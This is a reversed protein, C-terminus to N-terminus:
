LPKLYHRVAHRAVDEGVRLGKHCGDRFHIGAFVRSSASEQAAYSLSHFRRTIAAAPLPAMPAPLTVPPVNATLEYGVRDTGFFRRMVETAAGSTTPLACPYDPYPPTELLPLWQNDSATFPNGDNAWRIATVPRWFSRQYKATFTVILGDMQAMSALAFLRAHQWRDMGLGNAINRLVANWNAGGGAWFRAIRTLESDPYLGRVRASGLSKVELYDLAYHLSRPHLIPSGDPLFRRPDSFTFPRLNAFGAFQPSALVTPTPQYVGVAPAMTYPLHPTSIGDNQRTTLIAAAAAQGAAVGQNESAGDPIAALADAYAAEVVTRANAKAPTEPARSLEHMLTDRAAAAIAADPSATASAGPVVSYTQYRRDIANLADHIAIHVVTALYTRQPPAGVAPSVTDMIRNWDTVSDALVPPSCALLALMCARVPVRHPRSPRPSYSARNM